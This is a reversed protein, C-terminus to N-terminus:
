ECTAPTPWSLARLPQSSRCGPERQRDIDRLAEMSAVTPQAEGRLTEIDALMPVAVETLHAYALNPLGVWVFFLAAFTVTLLCLCALLLLSFSLMLRSQLGTPV